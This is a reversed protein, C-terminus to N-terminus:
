KGKAKIKKEQTLMAKSPAKPKAGTKKNQAAKSRLNDWLGRQSTSGDARKIMAGSKAKKIPGGNKRNREQNLWRERQNESRACGTREKGFGCGGSVESFKVKDDNKVKKAYQEVTLGRREAGKAFDATLTSDMYKSFVGRGKANLNDRKAIREAVSMQNWSKVPPTTTQTTTTGNVAKKIKGGAKLTSGKFPGKKKVLPGNPVKTIKAM